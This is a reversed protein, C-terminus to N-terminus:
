NEDDWMARRMPDWVGSFVDDEGIALRMLYNLFNTDLSSETQSPRTGVAPPSPNPPPTPPFTPGDDLVALATNTAVEAWLHPMDYKVMEVDGLPTAAISLPRYAPSCFTHPCLFHAGHPVIPWLTSNQVWDFVIDSDTHVEVMAVTEVVRPDSECWTYLSRVIAYLCLPRGDADVYATKIVVPSNIGFQVNQGVLSLAATYAVLRQDHNWRMSGTEADTEVNACSEVFEPSNTAFGGTFVQVPYALENVTINNEQMAAM